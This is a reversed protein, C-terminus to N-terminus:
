QMMVEQFFRKEENKKRNEIGKGRAIM